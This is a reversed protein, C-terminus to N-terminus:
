ICYISDLQTARVMWQGMGGSNFGIFREDIKSLLNEMKVVWADFNGLCMENVINM